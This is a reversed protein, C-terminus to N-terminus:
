ASRQRLCALHDDRPRHRLSTRKPPLGGVCTENWTKPDHPLSSGLSCRAVVLKLEALLVPQYRRLFADFTNIAKLLPIEGHERRM